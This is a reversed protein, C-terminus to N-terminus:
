TKEDRYGGSYQVPRLKSAASGDPAMATTVLLLSTDPLLLRSSRLGEAWVRITKWLDTSADSLDGTRGIHHKTQIQETPQGGEEFSIDDFREISLESEPRTRARELLLVLSYRCQYLYGLTSSSAGFPNTTSM